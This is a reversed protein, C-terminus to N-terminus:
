NFTAKGTFAGVFTLIVNDLDVYDIHGTVREGADSIVTVSAYKGLGHNVNWSTSSGGQFHTYTKDGEIPVGGINYTQGSPIDISGVDDIIVLSEQIIRGTGDVKLIANDTTFETTASVTYNLRDELDTIESITHTHGTLAGGIYFNNNSIDVGYFEQVDEALFVCGPNMTTGSLESKLGIFFNNYVQRVAM